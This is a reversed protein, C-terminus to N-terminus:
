RDTEEIADTVRRLNAGHFVDFHGGTLEATEEVRAIGAWAGPDPEAPRTAARLEVLRQGGPRPRWARLLALNRRYVQYRATLAPDTAAQAADVPAGTTERVDTLFADLGPGDATGTQDANDSDDADRAAASVPTDVVVVRAVPTGDAEAARAAEYALAGGFSWGAFVLPVAGTLTGAPLADLCARALAPLTDPVGDGNASAAPTDLGLVHVDVDAALERILATYCSVGGGVPPFLVLRLGPAASPRPRHTWVGSAPATGGRRGCRAALGGVTPDAMFDGFPVDHGYRTRLLSLLRIADYSGGGSAFFDADGPATGLVERWCLAVEHARLGGTPPAEAAQATARAQVGIRAGTQSVSPASDPDPDPLTALRARDVKGNATLPIEDLAVITDPVMYRPLADRLAAWAAERWGPPTGPELTVYGAPRRRAGEGRVCVAARRVGPVRSLQHEIEGLEVRHGNLKVQTDTRGLFELTGGPLRRGRDGTRYTWGHVPHDLFAAATREPDGAYGDAVGGGALHLEGIEWDSCPGGAEDLVLVRQGRLARGYPISRGALDAAAVPHAISWVAGETAGGLSIVRAGPALAGLAPPLALPIWDGSLLFARLGPAPVGEEALLSALAPASNWVTVGHEGILRAWAAPDRATDEGLMVVAGGRALPGFVDWVSLDFGISSVSLVRDGAGLGLEDDVADVTGLVAAHSVVVGKPEGTSGSTFIVYATPAADAHAEYPDGAADAPASAPAEPLPLARVGRREWREAAGAAGADATVLAFRLAGRRAINDLRGDPVGYDLPVYVCGALLAGLIGVVQGRGRPLHVAVRDGTAAGAATLAAAVARAHAVLTAYDLTGDADLVAPAAPTAAAARLVRGHLTDAPAPTTGPAPVPRALPDRVPPTALAAPNRAAPATWAADAGAGTGTEALARLFGTCRAVFDEAFGPDFADARWDFGLRLRGDSERAVQHDILVQPVRLQVEDWRRRLGLAAEGASDADFATFAFPHALRRPDTGTAALRAIEAGGISAHM